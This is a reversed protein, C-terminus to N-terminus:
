GVEGNTIVQWSVEGSLAANANANIVFGSTTKSEYSWSRSNLGCITITYNTTPLASAFTVTAKRPAGTFSGAAVIGAKYIISNLKTKDAGSMFGSVSTTADAHQSGGSGIHSTPAAGVQAATTGHPNSTNAIHTDIQTHSNVQGTTHAVPVYAINGEAPTLYQPHPDAAAVHAAVSATGSYIQINGADDKAKALGDASDVFENLKGSAANPVTGIAVKTRTFYSSM